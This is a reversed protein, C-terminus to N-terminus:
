RDPPFSEVLIRLPLYVFDTSPQFDSVLVPAPPCEVQKHTDAEETYIDLHIPVKLEEVLILQGPWHIQM